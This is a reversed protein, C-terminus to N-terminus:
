CFSSKNIESVQQAKLLQEYQDIPISVCDGNFSRLSYDSYRKSVSEGNISRLSDMSGRKERGISKLSGDSHHKHLKMRSKLKSRLLVSKRPSIEAPTSFLSFWFLLINSTVNVRNLRWAEDSRKSKWRLLFSDSEQTWKLGIFFERKRCDSLFRNPMFLSLCKLGFFRYSKVRSSFSTASTMVRM